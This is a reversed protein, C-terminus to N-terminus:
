LHRGPGHLAGGISRRDGHPRGFRQRLDRRGHLPACPQGRPLERRQGGHPQDDDPLGPRFDGRVGREPLHDCQRIGYNDGVLRGDPLRISQVAITNPLMSLMVSTGVAVTLDNQGSLWVGNLRYEPIISGPPCNNNPTGVQVNIVISCGETSTLIYAGGQSSAVNSILYDGSVNKITGGSPLTVDFNLASGNRGENPLISLRVNDGEKVSITADQGPNGSQYPNSNVRWEPAIVLDGSDCGSTVNLNVVTACGNATTLVFQGMNGSDVLGNNRALNGPISALQTDVQYGNAQTFNTASIFTPAQYNKESTTIYYTGTTIARLFVQQGEPVNINKGQIWPGNGIKYEAIISSPQCIAVTPLGIGQEFFAKIEGAGLAKNFVRLEDIRGNIEDTVGSQNYNQGTLFTGTPNRYEYFGSSTFSTDNIDGPDNPNLLINGTTNQTCVEVGNAFLRATTGDYTAAIHVWQNKPSYGSYCNVSGGTSTPFEWKYLSNHFGFFLSPYDHSLIGVNYAIDNRNIWAMVTVSNNIDNFSSDYPVDIITNSRFEYGDMEVAGGFLGGNPRWNNNSPTKTTANNTVNYITANNGNGSRDMAMSGSNEDFPLHLVLNPNEAISVGNGIKISEAVSPVGNGDLAFLMYYGPPLLNRDPISVVYNGGSGTFSVPIRRQENNTSHTVASFRILSFNSINASGNVTITSNYNATEPASITPRSALGGSANFLYPPSYIEADMHNNCNGGYTGDCLGGGGVFVRGDLLLIAVSHYTRPTAMGAVTRWTNTSPNYLEASLRSGTDTFVEAHDLGGTVLVQGNPLVTSNHMTRSFALNNVTRTVVPTNSNIDIVFSTEKAPTNSDYSRSGGVKLIKGIDFMVTTGKMSYTDNGRQGADTWSGGNAVDIWHMREGPGAHFIKGNPAAWLWAHNDIRYYGRAEQSLDNSNWLLENQIQPMSIWGTEPTWREADKNGNVTTSESWSGGLTFVSGDSLTVNGQYGRRINMDSAVSWLGTKPDYISTRESSTGGAALIRGDPLNNIGPCFMDHDTNSTTEGLARGNAGLFPDFIETYTMGDGMEVFTNRFQSSWTILRGDPLNAAAVPVIGFPIPASWQGNQAPNQATTLFAMLTLLISTMLVKLSPYFKGM